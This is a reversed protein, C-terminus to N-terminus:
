NESMRASQHEPSFTVRIDFFLFHHTLGTHRQVRRVAATEFLQCQLTLVDNANYLGLLDPQIQGQGKLEFAIKISKYKLRSNRQKFNIVGRPTQAGAHCVM